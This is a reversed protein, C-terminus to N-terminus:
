EEGIGIYLRVTSSELPSIGEKWSVKVDVVEAIRGRIYALGIGKDLKVSTSSLKAMSENRSVSRLTLEVLDNRNKDITGSNDIAKITIETNKDLDIFGSPSVILLKTAKITQSTVYLSVSVTLM